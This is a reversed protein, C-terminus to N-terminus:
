PDPLAQVAGMGRNRPPTPPLPDPDALVERPLALYVPGRPETMAIDLARRTIEAVSQGARLEYDWKVYERLMGGQDFSEQGWHIGANRSGVHGTETNPSRGAVLLIAANDRAANIVGCLANATGVSVHVMAVAMKGSALYYGHAMSLAVNEHPVTFFRPIPRGQEALEVMAEILPAFDTGANAFVYEVGQEHLTQLFSEAAPRVPRTSKNM